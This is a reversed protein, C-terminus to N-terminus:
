EQEKNMNWYILHNGMSMVVTENDPLFVFSPKSDSVILGDKDKELFRFGQQFRHAMKGTEFNYIHLEVFRDSRSVLGFLKGDPSVKFDPEYHAKSTFGRRKPQGTEMDVVNIYMQREATTNQMKLHPIQLCLLNKGDDTFDLRYVIDYLENITYLKEFSGADYVSIQQKYKLANKMSKKDRQLQPINKADAEYLHHSVAIKKGDPSIAISNSADAVVFSSEVVNSEINLFSVQDGTLTVAYKEDPTIRVSHYNEFRKIVKGSKGDIIEFNVERDKNPAFDVYYQQNLLIYKGGSSYRIASGAYWNGVNFQSLVEQNKWNFLYFPFSQTSSIALIETDPSLDLGSLVHRAEGIKVKEYHYDTGQASIALISYILVISILLRKM